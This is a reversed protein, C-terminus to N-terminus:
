PYLNLGGCHFLIAIRYNQFNRFGRAASKIQQIKSNIGEA